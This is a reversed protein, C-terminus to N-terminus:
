NPGARVAPDLLSRNSCCATCIWRNLPRIADVWNIRHCDTQIAEYGKVVADRSLTEVM